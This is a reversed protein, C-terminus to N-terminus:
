AEWGAEDVDAAGVAAMAPGRSQAASWDSSAADSVSWPSSGADDARDPTAADGATVVEAVDQVRTGAATQLDRVAAQAIAVQAAAESALGPDVQAMAEFVAAKRALWEAREAPGAEATPQSAALARVQADIGHQASRALRMM